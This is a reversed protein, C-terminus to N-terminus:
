AKRGTTQANLNKEGLYDKQYSWTKIKFHRWHINYPAFDIVKLATNALVTTMIVAILLSYDAFFNRIHYHLYPTNKLSVMLLLGIVATTVMLVIWALFRDRYGICLIGSLDEMGEVESMNLNTFNVNEAPKWWLKKVESTNDIAENLFAWATFIAFVEEISPTVYKLLKSSNTISFVVMWIGIFMGTMGYFQLFDVQWTKSIKYILEMLLTIPPTTMVLGLPQTSFLSFIIGAMVQGLMTVEMTIYSECRASISPGDCNSKQTNFENTNGFAMVPLVVGVLVFVCPQLLLNLFVFLFQTKEDPSFSSM